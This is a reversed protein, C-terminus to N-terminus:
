RDPTETLSMLEQPELTSVQAQIVSAQGGWICAGVADPLPLVGLGQEMRCLSMKVGAACLRRTVPLQRQAHVRQMWLAPKSQAVARELPAVVGTRHLGERAARLLLRVVAVGPVVEGGHM